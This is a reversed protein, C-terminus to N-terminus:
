QAAVLSFLVGVSRLQAEAERIAESESRSRGTGATVLPRGSEDCFLVEWWGGRMVELRWQRFTAVHMLRSGAPGASWRLPKCFADNGAIWLDRLADEVKLKAHGLTMEESTATLRHGTGDGALHWVYLGEGRPEVIGCMIGVRFDFGRDTKVWESM